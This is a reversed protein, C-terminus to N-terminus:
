RKRRSWAPFTVSNELLFKRPKELWVDAKIMLVRIRKKDIHERLVRVEERLYDIVAQQERNMWGARFILIFRLPDM